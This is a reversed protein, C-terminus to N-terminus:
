SEKKRTFVIELTKVKQGDEGTNYGSLTHKDPSEIKIETTTLDIIGSEADTDYGRTRLVNAVPDYRGTEVTMVTRENMMFVYEYLGTLMNYGLYGRGHFTSGDPNPSTAIEELFRGDLVWQKTSTGKSEQPQEDGIWVKVATDWQGVLPNLREHPTGPAAIDELWDEEEDAAAVDEIVADEGAAAESASTSAADTAPAAPEAGPAVDAQSFGLPSMTWLVATAALLVWVNVEIRKITKM